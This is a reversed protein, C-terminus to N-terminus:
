RAFSRLSLTLVPGLPFGVAAPLLRRVFGPLSMEDAIQGM